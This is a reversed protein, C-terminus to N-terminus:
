ESRGLSCDNSCQGLFYSLSCKKEENPTHIVYEQVEWQNMMTMTLAEKYPFEVDQMIKM